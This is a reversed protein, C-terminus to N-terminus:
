RAHPLEFLEIEFYCPNRSQEALVDLRDLWDRSGDTPPKRLRYQFRGSSKEDVYDFIGQKATNVWKGARPVFEM